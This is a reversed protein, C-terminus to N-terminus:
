GIQHWRHASRSRCGGSVQAEHAKRADRLVVKMDAAIKTAMEPTSSKRAAILLIEGMDKRIEQAIDYNRQPAPRSAGDALAILGGASAATGDHFLGVQGFVQGATFRDPLSDKSETAQPNILVAGDVVVCLSGTLDCEQGSKLPVVDMFDIMEDLEYANLASLM